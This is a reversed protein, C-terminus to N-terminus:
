KLQYLHNRDHECAEKLRPLLTQKNLHGALVRDYALLENRSLTKEVNRRVEFVKQLLELLKDDVYQTAPKRIDFMNFYEPIDLVGEPTEQRMNLALGNKGNQLARATAIDLELMAALDQSHVM